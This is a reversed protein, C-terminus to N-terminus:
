LFSFLRNVYLGSWNDADEIISQEYAAKLTDKANRVDVGKGALYKKLAKWSLEYTFEFRQICADRQLDNRPSDYAEKLRELSRSFEEFRSEFSSLKLM